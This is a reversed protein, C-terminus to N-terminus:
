SAVKTMFVSGPLGFVEAIAHMQEVTFARKGTILDSVTAKALGTTRCLDAQSMGREKLMQQLLQHPPLPDLAYHKEEYLIILDSLAELYAQGGMDLEEQLLSDVISQAADLQGESRISRLPHRKILRWYSPAADDRRKKGKTLIM